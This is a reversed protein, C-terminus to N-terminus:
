LEQEKPGNYGLWKINTKVDKVWLNHAHCQPTNYYDESGWKKAFMIRSYDMRYAANYKEALEIHKEIPIPLTTPSRKMIDLYEEKTVYSSFERYALEPNKAFTQSGWHELLPYSLM